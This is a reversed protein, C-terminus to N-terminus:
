LMLHNSYLMSKNIYPKEPIPTDKVFIAENLHKLLMNRMLLSYSYLTMIASTELLAYRKCPLIRLPYDDKLQTVMM